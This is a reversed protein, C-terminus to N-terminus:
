TQSVGRGFRHMLRAMILMAIGAAILVVAIFWALLQPYLIISVGLAVFLLGPIITWVGSGPREMMGKCANAMPCSPMATSESM